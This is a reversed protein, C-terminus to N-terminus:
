CELAGHTPSQHRVGLGVFLVKLVFVGACGQRSVELIHLGLTAHATHSHRTHPTHTVHTHQTRHTLSTHTTHPAHTVHTRPTHSSHYAFQTDSIRTQTRQTYLTRPLNHTTHATRTTHTPHATCATLHPPHATCHSTSHPEDRCLIHTQDTFKVFPHVNETSPLILELLINIYIKYASRQHVNKYAPLINPGTTRNRFLNRFVVLFCIQEHPTFMHLYKSRTMHVIYPRNSISAKVSPVLTHINLIELAIEHSWKGALMVCHSWKDEYTKLREWSDVLAWTTPESNGRYLTKSGHIAWSKWRNILALKSDTWRIEVCTYSNMQQDEHNTRM